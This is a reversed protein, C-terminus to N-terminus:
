GALPFRVIVTGRGGKRGYGGIPPLGGVGGGGGGTGDVGDQAFTMLGGTTTNGNGGSNSGGVGGTGNASYNGGGGGGGYYRETGTISCAVGIGGAGGQSAAGNGGAGGAGGGGGSPQSGSTNGNGGAYGATGAGGSGTYCGGGGSAGTKGNGGDTYAGGGGGISTHGNFSSEAGNNTETLETLVAAGGLGVVAEYTGATLVEDTVYQVQGGGGAGKPTTISACTGGGGGVVLKDITRTSSLVLNGTALFEHVEYVVDAITIFSVVGGTAIPKPRVQYQNNDKTTWDTTSTAPIAIQGQPIPGPIIDSLNSM